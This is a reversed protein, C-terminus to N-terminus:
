LISASKLFFPNNLPRVRNMNWCMQQDAFNEFRCLTPSSALDEDKGVATQVATDKRLTDHDNLDEYGLALSYIRQRLMDKISHKIKKKQRPDNTTAAIRETLNIAKDVQNLLMVGADSTIEGGSFNAQVKRNKCRTFEITKTTCVTM